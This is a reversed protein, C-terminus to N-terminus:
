HTNETMLGCSIACCLWRNRYIGSVCRHLVCKNSFNCILDFSLGFPRGSPFAGENEQKRGMEKVRDKERKYRFCAYEFVHLRYLMEAVSASSYVWKSLWILNTQSFHLLDESKIEVQVCCQTINQKTTNHITNLQSPRFWCLKPWYTIITNTHRSTLSHTHSRKKILVKMSRFRKIGFAFTSWNKYPHSIKHIRILTHM